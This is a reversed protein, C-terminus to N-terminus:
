ERLFETDREREQVGLMGKRKPHGTSGEEDAHVLTDTNHTHRHRKCLAKWYREYGKGM